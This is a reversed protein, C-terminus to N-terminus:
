MTFPPVGIYIEPKSIEFNNVVFTAEERRPPSSIVHLAPFIAEKL